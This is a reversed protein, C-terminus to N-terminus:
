FAYQLRMSVADGDDGNSANAINDSDAMLYNASVKVSENAYWNV